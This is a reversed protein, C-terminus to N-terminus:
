NLKITIQVNFKYNKGSIPIFRYKFNKKSNILMLAIGLNSNGNVSNADSVITEKYYTKLEDVSKKKFDTLLQKLKVKAANNVINSTSLLIYNENHFTKLVTGDITKSENSHKLVNHFSEIIVYISNKTLKSSIPHKSFYNRHFTVCQNFATESFVGHHEYIPEIHKM